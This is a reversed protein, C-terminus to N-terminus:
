SFKQASRQPYSPSPPRAGHSPLSPPQANRGSTWRAATFGRALLTPHVYTWFCVMKQIIYLELRCGSHEGSKETFVPVNEPICLDTQVNKVRHM